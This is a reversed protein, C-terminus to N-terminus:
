ANRMVTRGAYRPLVSHSRRGSATGYLVGMSLESGEM